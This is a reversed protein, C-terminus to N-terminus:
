RKGGSSRSSSSSSSSRSSSSSSSSKDSSSRNSSSSSRVSSSSSSKTNKDSSGSTNVSTSNGSSRRESSSSSRVNSGSSKDSSSSSRVSTGSTTSSSRKTSTTTGSSTGTGSSSRDNNRTNYMDDNRSSERRETNPRVTVTGFDSRRNTTYVKENRVSINNVYVPHSYRGKYYSVNHHHTRYNGGYYNTYHYPKGFYFYNHNTYTMYVRFSWKNGNAYIPRYFYDINIFRRYQTNSLVWHLDDNRIDLLHYYDDMAWAYGRVVDDMLYRASYIFDYNIEYIDNYQTTSLNLEYAMKDTLFRAEKRVKSTSMAAMSMSSMATLGIAFLTIMLRKM